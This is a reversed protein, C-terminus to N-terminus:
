NGEKLKELAARATPLTPDLELAKQYAKKGAATQGATLLAEGYSDWVNAVDPFLETNLRFADIAMSHAAPDDSFLLNYGINNLIMDRPDEPHFNETLAAFNEKVYAAGEKQWAGFVAQVAPRAPPRPKQGRILALIGAGLNEAVPENMNAFVLVSIQDRLIEFYATNAGEFGGMHTMAGGSNRHEQYFPYMEDLSRTAEDWLENGYHYARFFRLMDGTTAYFGGAPTPIEQLFENDELAGRMTKLYGIARQPVTYKDRLYTNNLGLKQVIREDVADYYSQGTVKEILGGLIVYGANSYQQDTGPEFDLPKQQIYALTKPLTREAIPLNWYTEDHYPGFGSQHNLLHAVTIHDAAEPAFGELLTGLKDTLKLKGERVLQLVVVKTFAKNMSGIDFRTDVTNPTHTERNALGFAQHYVPVGDQAILVVGSFIDLDTYQKVLSDVQSALAPQDKLLNEHPAAAPQCQCTLLPLTLLAGLIFQKM